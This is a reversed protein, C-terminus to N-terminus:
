SNCGDSWETVYSLDRLCRIVRLDPIEISENHFFASTALTSFKLEVFILKTIAASISALTFYGQKHIQELSNLM